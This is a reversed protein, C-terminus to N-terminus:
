LTTTFKMFNRYGCPTSGFLENKPDIKYYQYFPVKTPDIFVPTTSSNSNSVTTINYLNEVTINKVQSTQFPRTGSAFAGMINDIDTTTLEITNSPISEEDTTNVSTVHISYTTYPKLELTINMTDTVLVESNLYINYYKNFSPDDGSTVVWTLFVNIQNILTGNLDLIQNNPM